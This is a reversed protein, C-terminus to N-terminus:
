LEVEVGVGVFAELRLSDMILWASMRGSGTHTHRVGDPLLINRRPDDENYADITDLATQLFNAQLPPYFNTTLHLDVAGSLDIIGDEACEAFGMARMTGM